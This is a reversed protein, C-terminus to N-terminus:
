KKVIVRIIHHFHPKDHYVDKIKKEEIKIVKFDKLLDLLEKKGFFHRFTELKPSYFTNEEVMKARELKLKKLAPDKISFVIILTILLKKM